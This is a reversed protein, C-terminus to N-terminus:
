PQRRRSALWTIAEPVLFVPAAFAAMILWDRADLPVTHLAEQLFPVYVACAQLGVMAIWALILRPNSFFGIRAIPEHLARFNFVNVKELLVIATFAVTQAAVIGEPGADRYIHFLWLTAGGIYAGLAAVMQIGARDLIRGRPDRPPRSMVGEEAPELGLALATVSDTVLNMWLIQVPLLILPGRLLLNGLIAVVEGTNSSLLYRVFKRINDYQRRGEEVAGIISAFNDDTIIMDSASRAADTGRIGMAIGVDARQLAPADNVGDGTMGVIHGMRQLQEVIRLKHEPTTRAFVADGILASRLEEDTMDALTTGAIPEDVELGVARAVATATAPADGTIMIVAIGASRARAVAAPVEPRPPDLMGVIALLTLDSEVDGAAPGLGRATHDGTPAGGAGSPDSEGPLRRMALALTRLGEDGMRHCAAEVRGRVDEDLPREGDRTLIRTCRDLLVEPAGKVHATRGDGTSTVITMRKRDSTFPIEAVATAGDEGSDVGAKMAAVVLAAETAEGVTVWDGDEEEIRAHNCLLGTELARLLDPRDGPHVAGDEDEFDGRPDYGTGTVRVEGDALWVNRVTMENATLTGTKDTCIVTAAGLTEAAPLRRLLARRKSMTRIGLALTITVVAPLGEPVVAVALSVGTMFVELLPRGLSVGLLAVAAAVVISAIGMQRALVTLKRQLPTPDRVVTQALHAIRGFETRMGTAVVIGTGRGHAVTTGTWAMPGREALATDADVAGPSKHVPISEGTLAAEDIRLDTVGTLRLDAPVHAGTEIRVLDGPVIRSTPIRTWRGDRRVTAQESLMRRLARVAREARWEQVFGLAANLLVIALITVADAAEGATASIAAAVLLVVILANTFQRALVAYWPTGPAEELENPGSIELRPAAEAESLGRDADTDLRSAAEAPEIAHWEIRAPPGEQETM